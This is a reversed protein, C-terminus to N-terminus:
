DSGRGCPHCGPHHLACLATAASALGYKCVLELPWWRVEGAPDSPWGGVYNITHGNSAGDALTLSLTADQFYAGARLYVFVDDKQNVNVGRVADVARSLSAWPMLMTGDGTKDNGATSVYFSTDASAFRTAAFLLLGLM